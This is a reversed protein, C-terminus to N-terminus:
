GHQLKAATPGFVATVPRYEASRRSYSDVRDFPDAAMEPGCPLPNSERWACEGHCFAFEGRPFGSSPGSADAAAKWASRRWCTASWTRCGELDEAAAEARVTEELDALDQDTLAESGSADLDHEQACAEARLREIESSLAAIRPGCADAPTRLDLPRPPDPDLFAATSTGGVLKLATEGVEDQPEIGASDGM